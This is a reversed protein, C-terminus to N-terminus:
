KMNAKLLIGYGGSSCEKLTCTKHSFMGGNKSIRGEMVEESFFNLPMQNVISAIEQWPYYICYFHELCCCLLAGCHM